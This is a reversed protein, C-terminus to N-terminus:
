AMAGCWSTGGTSASTTKTASTGFHSRGHKKTWRADKDKQRNKAPQKEWEEPTDGAKVKANDDRSNRQRPAPVITADIIESRGPDALTGDKVAFVVQTSSGSESAFRSELLDRAEQSETGPMTFEDSTKGGLGASLSATVILLGVWLALVWRRRRFCFHGLRYLYSAM